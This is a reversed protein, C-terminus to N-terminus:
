YGLARMVEDVAADIRAKERRTRYYRAATQLTCQHRKLYCRLTEDSVGLAEACEAITMRQGDVWYRAPPRGEHLRAEGRKVAMYRDYAAEMTEPGGDPQRHTHRWNTVAKVTTGCAQAVDESTMWKGHIRHRVARRVVPNIAGERYLNVVAQVSIGGNHKRASKIAYVSVGVLAGAEAYTMMKGDVPFRKCEAMM